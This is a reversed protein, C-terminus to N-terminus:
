DDPFIDVQGLSAFENTDLLQVVEILFKNFKERDINKKNKLLLWIVLILIIRLIIIIKRIVYLVM